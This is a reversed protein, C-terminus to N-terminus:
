INVILQTINNNYAIQKGQSQQSVMESFNGKDLFYIYIYTNRCARWWDACVGQQRDDGTLGGTAQCVNGLGRRRAPDGVQGHHWRLMCKWTFWHGALRRDADAALWLRLVTGGSQLLWTATAGDEGLQLQHTQLLLKLLLLVERSRVPWCGRNM